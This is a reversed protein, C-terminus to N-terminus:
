EMRQPGTDAVHYAPAASNDRASRFMLPSFIALLAFLAVCGLLLWFGLLAAYAPYDAAHLVAGAPVARNEIGIRYEIPFDVMTVFTAATGVFVTFIGAFVGGAVAASGASAALALVALMAVAAVVLGAQNQGSLQSFTCCKEAPVGSDQVSPTARISDVIDSVAWLVLPVLGLLLLAPRPRRVPRLAAAGGRRLGVILLCVAAPLVLARAGMVGWEVGVAGAHDSPPWRLTLFDSAFWPVCFGLGYGLGFNRSAPVALLVAGVIAGLLFNVVDPM